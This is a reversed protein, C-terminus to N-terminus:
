SNSAPITNNALLVTHAM